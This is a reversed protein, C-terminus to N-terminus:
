DDAGFGRWFGYPGDLIETRLALEHAIATAVMVEKGSLSLFGAVTLPAALSRSMWGDVSLFRIFLSPM